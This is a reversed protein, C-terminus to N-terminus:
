EEDTEATANGSRPPLVKALRIFDIEKMGYLVEREITSQVAVCKYTDTEYAKKIAKLITNYDTFSGSIKYDVIKVEATTVDLCMVEAVTEVVTRTVMRERAM